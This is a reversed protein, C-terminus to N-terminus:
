FGVLSEQTYTSWSDAVVNMVTLDGVTSTWRDVFRARTLMDVCFGAYNALLLDESCRTELPHASRSVVALALVMAVIQLPSDYPHAMEMLLFRIYLGIIYVCYSVECNLTGGHLYDYIPVQLLQHDGTKTRFASLEHTRQQDRDPKNHDSCMRSALNVCARFIDVSIYTGYSKEALKELLCNCIRRQNDVSTEAVGVCRVVWKLLDIPVACYNYVARDGYLCEKQQAIPAVHFKPLLLVAHDQPVDNPHVSDENIFEIDWVHQRQMTRSCVSAAIRTYSLNISILHFRLPPSYITKQM